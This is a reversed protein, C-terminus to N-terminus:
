AHIARGDVALAAEHVAESLTPHAHVTRALDEASAGFEMATVAEAILESAQAGLVHVGLVEDTAADALVKVFGQAGDGAALARGSAAFPFRGARVEVGDAALEAATRGVWAIEPHTYVVWPVTRHDIRSARGAIREAVAVGDESARHALMPGPTCDGVAWVGERTTRGYEDVRVFGREDCEVGAAELGLGDTSPRRGVAVVLRDVELRQEGDGDEYRVAVGAAGNTECGTVRKGLRVDLGQRRLIRLAERAVDRDAPALFDDLAELLVVQSGLRNWVSGLELGIVGAGVIGLRAPAEAFALAGSSDVIRDGDVPAAPLATPVSGSAIVVHRARVTRPTGGGAAEVELALGAEGAGANGAGGAGGDPALRAAGQLVEVGNKRLLGAVGKGLAGVVREKRAQMAAVDIRAGDVAIGHEPFRHALDHFLHSSDLLAKSPICGVNLCTGGLAPRGAADTWRDVCVASLGLQAARIAAVYGGPGAGVVAVDFADAGTGAGANASADAGARPAAAAPRRPASRRPGAM